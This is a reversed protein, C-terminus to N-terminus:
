QERSNSRVYRATDDDISPLEGATVTEIDVEYKIIDLLTIELTPRKHSILALVQSDCEKQGVIGIVSMANAPAHLSKRKCDPKAVVLNSLTDNVM